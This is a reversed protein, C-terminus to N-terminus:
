ALATFPSVILTGFVPNIRSALALPSNLLVTM